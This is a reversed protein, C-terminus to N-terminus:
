LFQRISSSLAISLLIAEVSETARQLNVVLGAENHLAKALEKSLIKLSSTIV